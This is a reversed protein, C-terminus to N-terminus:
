VVPWRDVDDQITFFWSAISLPIMKRWSFLGKMLWSSLFVSTWCIVNISLIPDSVGMTLRETRILSDDNRIKRMHLPTLMYLNSASSTTNSSSSRSAM